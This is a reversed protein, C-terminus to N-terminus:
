PCAAPPPGGTFLSAVLHTLDGINISGSSDIDGEEECPPEAGGTFLHAVLYTLDAINIDDALDNDVNGRIPPVCCGECVDGINDGDTDLQNTNPDDPCNDCLDGVTDSDGDAQDENDDDPCNDCSDGHSDADSNSQDENDITPCNDCSDGVGDMDTDEQLPNNVQSCNDESDEVGDGDTDVFVEVDVCALRFWKMDALQWYGEGNAAAGASQDDLYQVDLYHSGSYTGTPDVIAVGTMDGTHDTGFRAMSPFVESACPGGVGGVSDCNPSYTNTLNFAESWSYGGDRSVTLWLDGNAAGTPYDPNSEAACDDSVGGPIDNFQSFLLYFRGDCESITMKSTNLNWTPPNCVTQDWDANHATVIIPQNESWHFIRSANFPVGGGSYADAPWRSGSWVVHFNEDSDILASLDNYARYSDEIGDTTIYNTVNVRPQWTLGDNLSVQYYVDNDWQSIRSGGESCSCTDCEAPDGPNCSPLNAAWCLVVKGSPSAAIDHNLTFITDIIYPVADWTGADYAGTKRFYYIAQSDAVNSNSVQAIVHLITDIPGEIYRFKPWLVQQGYTGGFEAVAQPMYIGTWHDAVFATDQFCYYDRYYGTGDNDFGGVIARGENSVALGVYGGYHESPQIGIEGLYSGTSGSYANYGYKRDILVSSPLDTWSFHIILGNTPDHSWDIMRGMSGNHQYDYWTDGVKSGLGSSIGRSKGLQSGTADVTLRDDAMSMSFMLVLLVIPLITHRGM